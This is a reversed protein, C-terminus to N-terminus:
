AHSFKLLFKQLLIPNIQNVCSQIEILLFTRFIEITHIDKSCKWSEILPMFCIVCYLDASPSSLDSSASSAIACKLCIVGFLDASPPDRLCGCSGGGILTESIKWVVMKRPVPFVQLPGDHCGITLVNCPIPNDKKPTKTPVHTAHVYINLKPNRIPRFKQELRNFKTSSGRRPFITTRVKTSTECNTSHCGEKHPRIHGISKIFVKSCTEHPNILRSEQTYPASRALIDVAMPNPRM